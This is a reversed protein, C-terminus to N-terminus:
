DHESSRRDTIRRMATNVAFGLFGGDGFRRACAELYPLADPEGIELLVDVAAACVNAETENALVGYLLPTAEAAPLERILDCTLLRVDPDPDALLAPLVPRAAGIMARLADLAGTRLNADDVRVFRSMVDVSERGGIRVLGTFIAERVRPDTESTLADALANTGDASASLARAAGRRQDTTGSRLLEGAAPEAIPADAPDKRILPM